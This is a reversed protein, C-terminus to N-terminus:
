AAEGYALMFQVRKGLEGNPVARLNSAHARILNLGRGQEERWSPLPRSPPLWGPRDDDVWVTVATPGLSVEVTIRDSRTHRYANTVAESACLRAQDAIEGHGFAVLLLALWDRVIKPTTAARPATM